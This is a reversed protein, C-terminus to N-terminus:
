FERAFAIGFTFPRPGSIHDRVARNGVQNWGAHPRLSLGETVPISAAVGGSLVNMGELSADAYRSAFRWWGRGYEASASLAVRRALTHEFGITLASYAAGRADLVDVSHRTSASWEGYTRGVLLQLEATAPEGVGPYAYLLASPELSWGRWEHAAGLTLDFENWDQGLANPDVNAWAGLSWEGRALTASPQYVTGESLAIGRWLYRDNVDLESSLSWAPSPADAAEAHVPAAALLPLCSLMLVVVAPANRLSPESPDLRAVTVSNPPSLASRGRNDTPDPM